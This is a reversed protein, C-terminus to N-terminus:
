FWQKRNVVYEQYFQAETKTLYMIGEILGITGMVIGGWGCTLVTVLLMTLGAGTFGLVFKHIGLGGMLIGFIGAMVRNSDAAPGQAYFLPAQGPQAYGPVPVVSSLPIWQPLGQRWAMAMPSISGAAVFAPLESLIHPGSQTGRDNIMWCRDAISPGPSSQGASQAPAPRLLPISTLAVWASMGERWALASASVRGSAAMSAIADAGFPGSQRGNDNLYWQCNAQDSM